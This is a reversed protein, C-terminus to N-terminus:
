NQGAVGQGLPQPGIFQVKTLLDVRVQEIMAPTADVGVRNPYPEVLDYINGWQQAWMNGLLVVIIQAEENLNKLVM